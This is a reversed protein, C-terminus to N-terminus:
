SGWWYVIIYLFIWIVDVFHWYWIAFILGLHNSITFSGHVLRLYAIILAVTGLIVHFGHFGTILYFISGYISDSITFSAHVYEYGQVFTFIFGHLITLALPYSVLIKREGATFLLHSWTISAGSTLLIITNLLPLQYYPIINIGKPPWIGGIGIDPSLSSHFFTWFLAFFFMVESVLFLM